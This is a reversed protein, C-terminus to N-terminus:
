KVLAKKVSFTGDEFTVKVLYSGAKDINFDFGTTTANFDTNSILAGNISLVQINQISKSSNIRFNGNSPNPYIAFDNILPLPTVATTPIPGWIGKLQTTNVVGNIVTSSINGATDVVHISDCAAFVFDNTTSRYTMAHGCNDVRQSYGVHTLMWTATDIIQLTDQSAYRYLKGDNSNFAIAEGDTSVTDTIGVYLHQILTDGAIGIEFLVQPNPGGDGSVSFARGDPSFTLTSLHIDRLDMVFTLMGTSTNLEELYRTIGGKKVIAYMKGNAPNEALGAFGNVSGTDSVLVTASVKSGDTLDIEFLSDSQAGVAYYNTQAKLTSVAGIFAAFLLIKKM